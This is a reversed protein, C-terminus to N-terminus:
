HAKREHEQFEVKGKALILGLYEFRTKAFELKTKNLAIGHKYVKDYLKELHQKHQNMDVFYVLLDDIYVIVFDLDRFVVKWASKSNLLFM